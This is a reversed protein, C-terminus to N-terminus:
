SHRIRNWVMTKWTDLNESRTMLLGSKRRVQKVLANNRETGCNLKEAEKIRNWKTPAVVGSQM